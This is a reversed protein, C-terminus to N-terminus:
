EPGHIRHPRNPSLHLFHSSFPTLYFFFFDPPFSLPGPLMEGTDPQWSSSQTLSPNVRAYRIQFTCNPIKINNKNTERSSGRRGPSYCSSFYKSVSWCFILFFFFNFSVLLLSRLVHNLAKHDFYTYIAAWYRQQIKKNTKLIRAKGEPLWSWIPFAKIIAPLPLSCVCCWFQGLWCSSGGGMQGQGARGGPGQRGDVSEGCEQLAGPGPRWALNKTGPVIGWRLM